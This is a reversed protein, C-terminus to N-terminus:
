WKDNLDEPTSQRARFRCQPVRLRLQYLVDHPSNFGLAEDGRDVAWHPQLVRSTRGAGTRTRYAVRVSVLM